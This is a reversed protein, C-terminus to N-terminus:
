KIESFIENEKSPVRKNTEFYIELLKDVVQLKYKKVVKKMDDPDQDILISGVWMRGYEEKPFMSDARVNKIKALAIEAEIFKKVYKSRIINAGSVLMEGDFMASDMFRFMKFMVPFNNLKIGTFMEQNKM